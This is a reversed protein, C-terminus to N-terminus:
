KEVKNLLAAEPKEISVKTDISTILPKFFYEVVENLAGENFVKKVLNTNLDATLEIRKSEQESIELVTGALQMSIIPNVGPIVTPTQPSITSPDFPLQSWNVATGSGNLLDALTSSGAGNAVSIGGPLDGLKSGLFVSFDYKVDKEQNNTDFFTLPKSDNLVLKLRDYKGPPIQVKIAINSKNGTGVKDKIEYLIKATKSSDISEGVPVLEASKVGFELRGLTLSKIDVMLTTLAVTPKPGGPDQTGGGGGGGAPNGINVGCGQGVFFALLFLKQFSHNRKM